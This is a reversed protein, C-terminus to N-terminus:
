VGDRMMQSRLRRLINSKELQVKSTSYHLKFKYTENALDEIGIINLEKFVM